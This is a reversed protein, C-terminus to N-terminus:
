LQKWNQIGSYKVQTLILVKSMEKQILLFYIIEQFNFDALFLLSLQHCTEYSGKTEM